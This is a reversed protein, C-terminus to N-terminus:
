SQCIGSIRRTGIDSVIRLKDKITLQPIPLSLISDITTNGMDVVCLVYHDKNDTATEAQLKSMRVDYDRTAKVEVMFHKGKTTIDIKGFDSEDAEGKYYADFDYGDYHTEVEFNAAKFVLKVTEEVLKGFDKNKKVVDKTEKREDVLQLLTAMEEPNDVIETIKELTEYDSIKSLSDALNEQQTKDDGTIRLIQLDLSSFGFQELLFIGNDGNVYQSLLKNNVLERFTKNSIGSAELEGDDENKCPVWKRTKLYTLWLAPYVKHRQGCSCSTEIVEKMVPKKIVFEFLFKVFNRAKDQDQGLAGIIDPVLFPFNKFPKTLDLPKIRHRGKLGHGNQPNDLIAILEKTDLEIELISYIVNPYIIGWSTLQSVLKNIQDQKLNNFYFNSLLHSNEFDFIDKYLHANQEWTSVPSLLVPNLGGLRKVVGDSSIVPTKLTYSKWDGSDLAMWVLLDIAGQIIHTDPREGDRWIMVRNLLREVVEKTNLSGQISKELLPVLFYSDLLDMRIQWNSRQAINKLAEPVGNDKKLDVPSKLVGSQSPILNDLFNSPLRGQCSIVYKNLLKFFECIWEKSRQLNQPFHQNTFSTINKSERLDDALRTLDILEDVTNGDCIKNWHRITIQWEDAKDYDPVNYLDAALNWVDSIEINETRLDDSEVSYELKPIPFNVNLPSDILEEKGDEALYNTVIIKTQLVNNILENLKSKWVNAGDVSSDPNTLRAILHANGWKNRIALELFAPISGLADDIIKKNDNVAESEGSLLIDSREENPEFNGNIVFPIGTKESKGILPYPYFLKAESSAPMLCIKNEKQEALIACCTDTCTSLVKILTYKNEVTNIENKEQRTITIQTINGQTDIRNKTWTSINGNNTLEVRTLADVFGIVYPIHKIFSAMGEKAALKASDDNLIYKYKTYSKESILTRLQSYTKEFNEEIAKVDGSRDLFFGVNQYQGDARKAKGEIEVKDSLVHTVLFGSGFKGKQPNPKLEKISGALILTSLDEPSFFGGSHSFTLVDELLNITIKFSSIDDASASDCANQVLEWPWRQYSSINGKAKKIGNFIRQAANLHVIQHEQSRVEDDLYEL